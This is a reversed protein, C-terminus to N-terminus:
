PALDFRYIPENMPQTAAHATGVFRTPTVWSLDAAVMAQGQYEASTPDGLSSVQRKATGDPNM